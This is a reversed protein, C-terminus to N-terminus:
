RFPIKSREIKINYKEKEFYLEIIEETIGKPLKTGLVVKQLAKLPVHLSIHDNVCDYYTESDGACFNYACVRYESEYRYADNKIFPSMGLYMDQIINEISDNCKDNIIDYYLQLVRRVSDSEIYNSYAVDGFLLTRGRERFFESGIEGTFCLCVGHWKDGYLSWMPIFDEEKSFCTIYPAHEKRESDCIKGSEDISAVQKAVSRNQSIGYKGEYAILLEIFQTKSIKMETPDNLKDIRTARLELCKVGKFIKIGNMIKMFTEFTTYHYYM